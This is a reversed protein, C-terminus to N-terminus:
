DSPQKQQVGNQCHWLAVSFALMQMQQILFMLTLHLVFHFGQFIIRRYYTNQSFLQMKMNVEGAPTIGRKDRPTPRNEPLKKLLWLQQLFSRQQQLVGEKRGKNMCACVHRQKECRSGIKCLQFHYFGLNPLSLLWVIKKRGSRRQGM